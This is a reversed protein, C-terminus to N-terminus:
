SKQIKAEMLGPEAARFKLTTLVGLVIFAGLVLSQTIVFPPDTQKPAVAKLAPIKLFLQVVLVFVNLYLAMVCGLVYIKQWSRSSHGRAHYTLVLIVLSLVGVILAPTIGHFPFFFGTVSTLITTVLFLRTWGEPRKGAIWSFVVWLGSVIGVLSIAVHLLTYIALIM